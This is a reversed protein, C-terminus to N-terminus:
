YVDNLNFAISSIDLFAEDIGVDEIVPTFEGLVGKFKKSIRSYEEYDVPLFIANPCLKYATRLPMASHIGFKRAEYSASAVVGRGDAAGGVAVPKGRLEPRDRQEVSAYFADMDVHIIKRQDM